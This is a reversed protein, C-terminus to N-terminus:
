TVKYQGHLRRCGHMREVRCLLVVSSGTYGGWKAKDHRCSSSPWSGGPATVPGEVATVPARADTSSAREERLGERRFLKLRLCLLLM